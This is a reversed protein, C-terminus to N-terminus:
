GPAISLDLGDLDRPLPQREREAGDLDTLVMHDGNRHLLRDDDIWVAEEDPASSRVKGTAVEVVLPRTQGKVVVLRGNPSWSWPGAPDGPVPVFRTARGDDASFFQLGRRAHPMSETRPKGSDTQPLVVERGDRSWTFTCHDTCFYRVREDVEFTRFRGDTDLVGFSDKGSEKEHLTVVVRSGDPSWSGRGMGARGTRIWRVDGTVLDLLGTDEPRGADFVVALTGRPAAFLAYGNNRLYRGQSRDLVYGTGGSEAYGNAGTVIWGGPLRLPTAPWEKGPRPHVWVGRATAAAVTPAPDADVLRGSTPRFLLFPAAVALVALATGGATAIRRRRRLRRGQALAAAALGPAREAAGALEHVVARLTEEQSRTM